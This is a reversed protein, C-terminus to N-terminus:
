ASVEQMQQRRQHAAHKYARRQPKRRANREADRTKSCPKCYTDHGDAQRANRHFLGFPRVTQCRPCRKSGGTALHLREDGTLGGWVGDYIGEDLATRLCSQRTPCGGCINKAAEISDPEDSFFLDPDRHCPNVTRPAPARPPTPPPGSAVPTVRRIQRATM